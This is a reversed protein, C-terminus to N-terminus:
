YKNFSIGYIKHSSCLYYPLVQLRVMMHAPLSDPGNFPPPAM